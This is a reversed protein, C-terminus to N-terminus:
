CDIIYYYRLHLCLLINAPDHMNVHMHGKMSSERSTAFMKPNNYETKNDMLIYYNNHYVPM